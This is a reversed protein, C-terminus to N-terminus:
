TSTSFNLVTKYIGQMAKQFLMQYLVETELLHVLRQTNRHLTYIRRPFINQHQSKMFFHTGIEPLKHSLHM